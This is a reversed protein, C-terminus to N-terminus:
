KGSKRRKSSNFSTNSKSFRDNAAANNDNYGIFQVIKKDKSDEKKNKSADTLKINFKTKSQVSSNYKKEVGEAMSPEILDDSQDIIEKKSQMNYNHSKLNKINRNKLAINTRSLESFNIDITNYIKHAGKSSHSAVGEPSGM